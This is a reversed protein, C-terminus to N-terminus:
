AEPLGRDMSFVIKRETFSRAWYTFLIGFLRTVNELRVNVFRSLCKKTLIAACWSGM